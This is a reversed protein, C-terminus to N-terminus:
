SANAHTTQKYMNSKCQEFVCLEFITYVILYAMIVFASLCM